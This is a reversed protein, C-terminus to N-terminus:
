LTQVIRIAWTLFLTSISIVLVSVPVMINRMRIYSEKAKSEPIPNGKEIQFFSSPNIEGHNFWLCIEVTETIYTSVRTKDNKNRYISINNLGPQFPLLLTKGSTIKAIIQGENEIIMRRCGIMYRTCHVPILIDGEKKDGVVKGVRPIKNGIICDILIPFLAFLLAIFMIFMIKESFL